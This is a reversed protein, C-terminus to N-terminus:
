PDPRVPQDEAPRQLSGRPYVACRGFASMSAWVLQVVKLRRQVGHTGGILGFGIQGLVCFGLSIIRAYV